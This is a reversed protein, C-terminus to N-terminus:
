FTYYAFFSAAAIVTLAALMAYDLSNMKLKIFSTRKNYAGFGRAEMAVALDQSKVVADAVVPLLLYGYLKVKKGFGVQKLEIGRLQISVLAESFAATFMPIFRLATMIMFAFMYPIGMQTLGVIVKRSNEGAMVAASCMIIFFRMAASVAREAGDTTILTINNIMFLPEGTRVSVLQVAAIMLLLNFFRHFRKFFQRMDAGLLLAALFAVVSLVAMFLADKFILAASSLLIICYLKVRPDLRKM